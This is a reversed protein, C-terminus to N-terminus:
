GPAFPAPRATLVGMGTIWQDVPAYFLEDATYHDGLASLAAVWCRLEHAGSGGTATIADDSLADITDLNGSAFDALIQRDWDPNLPRFSCEGTSSRMGESHVRHQRELRDAHSLAGGGRLRRGSEGVATAVSPLPPDHSLGGSGILVIRESRSRAWEGVARGLARARQFTPRPPAACNIFIPIFPAPRGEVCLMELPQAGGHDVQMNYSLATDIGQAICHSACNAALREPIDLMGPITGFDGLSNGGAGICFCPMLDYLFGNLHDPYFVVVLDASGDAIFSAAQRVADSWDAEVDAPARNRDMLPSHSLCVAGIIM